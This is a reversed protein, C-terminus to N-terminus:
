DVWIPGYLRNTVFNHWPQFCHKEIHSWGTCKMFEYIASIYQDIWEALRVLTIPCQKGSSASSPSWTADKWTVKAHFSLGEIYSISPRDKWTVKM